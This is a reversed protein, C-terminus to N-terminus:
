CRRDPVKVVGAESVAHTEILIPLPSKPPKLFSNIHVTSTHGPFFMPSIIKGHEGRDQDVGVPEEVYM